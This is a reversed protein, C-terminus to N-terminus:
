GVPAVPLTRLPELLVAHAVLFCCDVTPSPHAAEGLAPQGVFVGDAGHHQTMAVGLVASAVFVHGGGQDVGPPRHEREIMPAVAAGTAVPRHDVVEVRGQGVEVAEDIPGGADRGPRPGDEEAV